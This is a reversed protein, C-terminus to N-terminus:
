MRDDDGEFLLSGMGGDNMESVMITALLNKLHHWKPDGADIMASIIDKEQKTLRRLDSM